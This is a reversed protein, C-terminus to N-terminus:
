ENKQGKVDLYSQLIVAAAIADQHGGRKKRSVGANLLVSRAQKTTGWEDWPLVNLKTQTRISEILKRAHRTQPIEENDTGTPLGVIILGAQNEEALNVIQASDLVMSIHKLAMLPRALVGGPDSIAIGITKEGPDVALIRTNEANM